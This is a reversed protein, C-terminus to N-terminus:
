VYHSRCHRNDVHASVGDRRLLGVEETNSRGRAPECESSYRFPQPVIGHSANYLTLSASNYYEHVMAM